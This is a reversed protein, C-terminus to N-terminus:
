GFVQTREYMACAYTSTHVYKYTSSVALMHTALVCTAHPYRNGICFSLKIVKVIKAFTEPIVKVVKACTEPIHKFHM